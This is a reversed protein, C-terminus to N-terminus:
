KPTADIRCRARAVTGPRGFAAESTLVVWEEDLFDVSEGQVQQMGLWCPPGLPSLHRAGDSGITFTFLETYTRVVLLRGSPSIAAATVMRDLRRGFPLSDSLTATIASGGAAFSPEIWYVDAQRNRGKTILLLAGDPAVALAEVDQPGERYRLWLVQTTQTIGTRGPAVDNPNPEPVVYIAVSDRQEENDGTDGIFLCDGSGVSAPCKALAIDEWDVAGVGELLFGGLDRGALDIAYVIPDDGSDNHTWLIGDHVRSVAVGSSEALRESELVGTQEFSLPLNPQAEAVNTSATAIAFLLCTRFSIWM